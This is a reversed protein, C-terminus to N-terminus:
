GIEDSESEPLTNFRLSRLNPLAPDAPLACHVLQVHASQPQAWRWMVSRLLKLLRRCSILSRSGVAGSRLIYLAPEGSSPHWGLLFNRLYACRADLHTFGLIPRRLVALPNPVRNAACCLLTSEVTRGWLAWQGCPLRLTAATTGSGGSHIACCLAAGVESGLLGVCALVTPM